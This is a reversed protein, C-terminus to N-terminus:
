MVGSVSVDAFAFMSLDDDKPLDVPIRVRLAVGVSFDDFSALFQAAPENQSEVPSKIRFLALKGM